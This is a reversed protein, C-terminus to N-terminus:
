VGSRHSHSDSLSQYLWQRRGPSLRGVILRNPLFPEWCVARSTIMPGSHEIKRNYILCLNAEVVDPVFDNSVAEV